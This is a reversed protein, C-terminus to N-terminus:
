EEATLEDTSLKNLLEDFTETQIHINDRNLKRKMVKFLKQKSSTNPKNPM